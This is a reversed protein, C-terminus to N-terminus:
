KVKVKTRDRNVSLYGGNVLRVIVQPSDFLEIAKDMSIYKVNLQKILNMNKKYRKMDPDNELSHDNHNIKTSSKDDNIGEISKPPVPMDWYLHRNEEADEDAFLPRDGKLIAKVEDLRESRNNVPFDKVGYGAFDDKISELAENIKAYPHVERLNMRENALITMAIGLIRSMDRTLDSNGAILPLTVQGHGMIESEFYSYGTPFNRPDEGGSDGSKVVRNFTSQSGVKMSIGMSTAKLLNQSYESKYSDNQSIGWFTIGAERITVASESIGGDYKDFFANFRKENRPLNSDENAIRQSYSQLAEYYAQQEDLIVLIHPIKYLEEYNGKKRYNTRAKSIEEWGKEQILEQRKRGVERIFSPLLFAKETDSADAYLMQIQPFYRANGWASANKPDLVFVLLDEPNHLLFSIILTSLSSASKGSGSAGILSVTKEVGIDMVVGNEGKSLGLLTNVSSKENLLVDLLDKGNTAKIGKFRAIDGDSVLPIANFSKAGDVITTIKFLKITLNDGYGSFNVAIASDDPSKKLLSYLQTNKDTYDEPKSGLPVRMEIKYFLDNQTIKNIMLIFSNDHEGASAYKPNTQMFFKHLTYAINYFEIDDRDVTENVAYGSNYSPLMKSYLNWLERPTKLKSLEKRNDIVYELFNQAYEYFADKDHANVIESFEDTFKKSSEDKLVNDLLKNFEDDGMEDEKDINSDDLLNPHDEYTDVSSPENNEDFISLDNDQDDEMQRHRRAMAMARARDSGMRRKRANKENDDESTEENSPKNLKELKHSYKLYALVCAASALPLGIAFGTLQLHSMLVIATGLIGDAYVMRQLGSDNSLRNLDLKKVGLAQEAQSIYSANSSSTIPTKNPEASINYTWDRILKNIKDSGMLDRAQSYDEDRYVQREGIQDATLRNKLMEQEEWYERNQQIIDDLQDATKYRKKADEFLTLENDYLHKNKFDKM